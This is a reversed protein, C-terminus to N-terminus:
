GDRIMATMWPIHSYTNWGNLGDHINWGVIEVGVEGKRGDTGHVVHYLM